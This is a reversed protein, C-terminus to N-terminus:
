QWLVQGLKDNIIDFVYRKIKKEMCAKSSALPNNM